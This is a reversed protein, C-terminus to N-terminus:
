RTYKTLQIDLVKLIRAIKVFFQFLSDFDPLFKNRHHWDQLNILVNVCFIMKM